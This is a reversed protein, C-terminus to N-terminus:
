ALVDMLTTKGAGSSGMLAGLMGPKIWGQVNDLLVLDGTPTKVTYTLDKWTFVSDNRVLDPGEDVAAESASLIVKSKDSLEIQLEEDAVIVAKAKKL